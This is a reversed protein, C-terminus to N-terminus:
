RATEGMGSPNEEMGRGGRSLLGTQTDEEKRGVKLQFLSLYHFSPVKHTHIQPCFRALEKEKSSQDPALAQWLPINITIKPMLQTQFPSCRQIPDKPSESPTHHLPKGM